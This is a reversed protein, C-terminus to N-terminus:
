QHQDSKLYVNSNAMTQTNILLVQPGSKPIIHLLHSCNQYRLASDPLIGPKLRDAGVFSAM